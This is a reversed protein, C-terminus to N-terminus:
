PRRGKPWPITCIRHTSLNLVNKGVNEQWHSTVM